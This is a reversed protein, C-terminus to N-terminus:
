TPRNLGDKVPWSAHRRHYISIGTLWQKKEPGAFTFVTNANVVFHASIESAQIGGFQQYPLKNEAAWKIFDQISCGPYLTGLEIKVKASSVIRDTPKMIINGDPDSYLKWMVLRILTSLVKRGVLDIDIKVDGYEVCGGFPEEWPLTWTPPVGCEGILKNLTM